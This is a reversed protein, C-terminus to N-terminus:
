TSCLFSVWDLNEAAACVAPGCGEGGLFMVVEAADRGRLILLGWTGSNAAPPFVKFAAWWGVSEPIGEPARTLM